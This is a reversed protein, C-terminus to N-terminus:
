RAAGDASRGAGIPEMDPCMGVARDARWVVPQDDPSLRRM